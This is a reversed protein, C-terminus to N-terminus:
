EVWLPQSASLGSRSVSARLCPSASIRLAAQSAPIISFDAFEIPIPIVPNKYMSLNSFTVTLTVAPGHTAGGALGSVVM